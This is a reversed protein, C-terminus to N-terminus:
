LAFDYGIRIAINFAVPLEKFTSDGVTIPGRSRTLYTGLFGWPEVYFRVDQSPMWRYGVNLHTFLGDLDAHEGPASDHTYRERFWALAAGM